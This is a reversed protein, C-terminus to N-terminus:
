ANEADRSRLGVFGFCILAVGCGVEIGIAVDVIFIFITTPREGPLRLSPVNALFGKGSLLGLAGMAIFVAFATAMAAALRDAPFAKEAARLGRSLILLLVASGLVVGGQFGGGPSLHGFVILYLGFLLAFPILKRGITDVIFSSSL